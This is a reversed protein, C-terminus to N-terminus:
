FTILHKPKEKGAKYEKNFRMISPKVFIVLETKKTLFDNSSFLTGIIPLRSLVPLGSYNEGQVDTLLGSLAIVRSETLDFYSSVKNTTIGPIGDSSMSKDINSVESEIGLSIRGLSDALPKVKLLVGYKKWVVQANKRNSTKIPFEGGALFEAEKGSKCIINPSALIKGNGSSELFHIKAEFDKLKTVPLLEATYSESFDVGYNQAFGRNIEVVTIQVKIVPELTLSTNDKIIQIGYPKLLKQYEYFHPDKHNLRILPFKSLQVSQEPLGHDLFLQNLFSNADDRVKDSLFAQFIYSEEPSVLKAIEIWDSLKYLNGTIVIAGSKTEVKLGLKKSLLSHIKQYFSINQPEVVQIKYLEGNLKLYSSGIGNSTVQLFKGKIEGRIVSKKEIWITPTKIIFKQSEGLSLILEKSNAIGAFLLLRFICHILFYKKEM